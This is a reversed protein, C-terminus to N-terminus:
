THLFRFRVTLCFLQDLIKKYYSQWTHMFQLLEKVPQLHVFAAAYWNDMM